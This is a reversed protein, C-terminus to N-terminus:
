EAPQEGADAGQRRRLSNRRPHPDSLHRSGRRASHSSSARRPRAPAAYHAALVAAAGDHRAQVAIDFPTCGESDTARPSCGLQLLLAVWGEAGRAAAAHLATRGASDPRDLAGASGRAIRQIVALAEPDQGPDEHADVCARLLTVGRCDALTPLLGTDMLVDCAGWCGAAVAAHLPLKGAADRMLWPACPIHLWCREMGTVKTRTRYCRQPPAKFLSVERQVGARRVTFAGFGNALCHARTAALTSSQEGQVRGSAHCSTNKLVRWTAGHVAALQRLVHPGSRPRPACKGCYSVQCCSCVAAPPWWSGCGICPQPRRDLSEAAGEARLGPPDLAADAAWPGAAAEGEGSPEGARSLEGEPAPEVLATKGCETCRAARGQRAFARVRCAIHLPVEGLRDPATLHAGVAYGPRQVSRVVVGLRDQAGVHIVVHKRHVDMVHQVFEPFGSTPMRSRSYYSCEAAMRREAASAKASDTYDAIVAIVDPPLSRVPDRKGRFLATGLLVGLGRCCGEERSSLLTGLIKEMAKQPVGHGPDWKAGCGSRPEVAHADYLERLAAVNALAEAAEVRGRACALHLATHGDRDRRQLTGWGALSCLVDLAGPHAFHGRVAASHIPSRGYRSERLDAPAVKYIGVLARMTSRALQPDGRRCARFLRRKLVAVSPPCAVRLPRRLLAAAAAAAVRRRQRRAIRAIVRDIQAQVQDAARRLEAEREPDSNGGDALHQIHGEIIQLQDQLAALRGENSGEADDDSGGGDDDDSSSAAAAVPVRRRRTCRSRQTGGDSGSSEGSSEGTSEDSGDTESDEAEAPGRVAPLRGASPPRGSGTSPRRASGSRQPRLSGRAAARPGAPSTRSLVPLAQRPPAGATLSLARTPGSVPAPPAPEAEAAAKAEAKARLRAYYREAMSDRRRTARAPLSHCRQPPHPRLEARDTPWVLPGGQHPAAAAPAGCEGESGPGEGLIRLLTHYPRWEVEQIPQWPRPSLLVPELEEARCAPGPAAELWPSVRPPPSAPPPQPPSSRRRLYGILEDARSCVPQCPASGRRGWHPAQTPPPIEAVVGVGM